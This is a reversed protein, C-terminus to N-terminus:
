AACERPAQTGEQARDILQALVYQHQRVHYNKLKEIKLKEQQQQLLQQQREEQNWMTLQVKRKEWKEWRQRRRAASRGGPKGM